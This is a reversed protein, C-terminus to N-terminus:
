YLAAVAIVILLSAGLSPSSVAAGSESSSVLFCVMGLVHNTPRGERRQKEKARKKKAGDIFKKPRGGYVSRVLSYFFVVFLLFFAVPQKSLFFHFVSPDLRSWCFVFFFWYFGTFGLLVWYFGTCGLSVWHSGTLDLAVRQFVLLM